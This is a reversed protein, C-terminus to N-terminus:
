REPLKGRQKMFEIFIKATVCADDFARHHNFTFGYYDAVSNLKYNPLKGRLLEQALTFTDLLRHGFFYGNEEGYYQVFRADFNVNHGVLIAGDVFKYFDAIVDEIQPAGVLDEDTIGTLRIIEGSLREPCAVFTSFREKMEGGIIKVAGIEIIRDMKGMAPSNNLGTTELDFVVFENDTLDTPKDSSAFLDTQTYDVYDQPFVTHYFKPVPKGKKAVPVFDEPQEGRNIKNAKFSMNGNFVENEGTIVLSDGQRIDRIKEVTAKKPFYTVRMSGTGDSLTIVFRSKQVDENTKENHKVYQKEEIYTVKGCVSYAGEVLHHDAIYIASKPLEDVGDIKTFERIPFRRIEMIPEEETEPLEDLLDEGIPEKEVIRVNGYFTGCYYSQLYASVDDLIRGASFLAQEGSAIDVVFHAGSELMEVEIYRMDLFASVSPFKVSIYDYIRQKIADADPVRKIMKIEAKWGQPLYEQTVNQVREVEADVYTKDTVISFEAVRSKKRLSIGYVIANRMGSLARIKELYETLKM